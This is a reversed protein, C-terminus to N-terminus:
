YLWGFVILFECLLSLAFFGNHYYFGFKMNFLSKFLSFVIVLLIYPFVLIGFALTLNDFLNDFSPAGPVEMLPVAICNTFAFITYLPVALSLDLFRTKSVPKKEAQSPKKSLSKLSNRRKEAESISIEGKNYLENIHEIEENRTKM